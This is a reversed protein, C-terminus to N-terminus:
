RVAPLKRLSQAVLMLRPPSKMLVRRESGTPVVSRTTSCTGPASAGKLMVPRTFRTASHPLAGLTAGPMAMSNM